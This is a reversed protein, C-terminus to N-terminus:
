LNVGGGERIISLLFTHNNLLESDDLLFWEVDTSVKFVEFAVMETSIEQIRM